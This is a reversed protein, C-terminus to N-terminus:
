WLTCIRNATINYSSEASKMELQFEGLCYVVTHLIEYIDDSTSITAGVWLQHALSGRAHIVPIVM